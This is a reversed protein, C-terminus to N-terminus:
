SPDRRLRIPGRASIPDVVQGQQTAILGIKAAQHRVAPMLPRWNQSVARAAESPCFSGAPSRESALRVLQACIKEQIDTQSDM